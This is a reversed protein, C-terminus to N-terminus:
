SGDKNCCKLRQLLLPPLRTQVAVRQAALFGEVTLLFLLALPLCSRRSLLPGRLLRRPPAGRGLLAVHGAVAPSRCRRSAMVM